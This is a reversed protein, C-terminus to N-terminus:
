DRSANKYVELNSFASYFCADCLRIRLDHIRDLDYVHSHLDTSHEYTSFVEVLMFYDDISLQLPKSNNNIM